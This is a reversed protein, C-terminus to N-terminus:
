GRQAESDVDTCHFRSCGKGGPGTTFVLHLTQFKAQSCHFTSPFLSSEGLGRVQGGLRESNVASVLLVTLGRKPHEAEPVFDKRESAYPFPAPVWSFRAGGQTEESIFRGLLALPEPM